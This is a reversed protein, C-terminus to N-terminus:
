QEISYILVTLEASTTACASFQSFNIRWQTTDIADPEYTKLVANPQLPFNNLTCVCNGTNIFIYGITSKDRFVVTGTDKAYYSVNAFKIKRMQNQNKLM